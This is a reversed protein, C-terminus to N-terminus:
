EYVHHPQDADGGDGLHVTDLAESVGLPDRCCLLGVNYWLELHTKPTFFGMLNLVETSSM